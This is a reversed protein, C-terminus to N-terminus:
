LLKQDTHGYTKEHANWNLISVSAYYFAKLNVCWGIFLTRRGPRKFRDVNSCRHFVLVFTEEIGQCVLILGLIENLRKFQKQIFIRHYLAVFSIKVTAFGWVYFIGSIITYQVVPSFLIKMFCLSVGPFM